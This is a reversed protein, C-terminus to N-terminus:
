EGAESLKDFDVCLDLKKINIDSLIHVIEVGSVRSINQIFDQMQQKQVFYALTTFELSSSADFIAKVEEKNQLQKKIQELKDPPGKVTILSIYRLGAKHPDILATFKKIIGMKSLKKVRARITAESVGLRRGIDRFSRRSNQQLMSLLRLSIRNSLIKRR